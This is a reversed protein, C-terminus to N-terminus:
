SVKNRESSLGPDSEILQGIRVPFIPAGPAIRGINSPDVNLLEAILQTILIGCQRGQCRGMGARTIQKISNATDAGQRVALRVDAFTIDECRCLITDDPLENLWGPSDLFMAATRNWFNTELALNKKYYESKTRDVPYGLQRSVELASLCGSWRAANRGAVGGCDGAIFFGPLSSELNENVM